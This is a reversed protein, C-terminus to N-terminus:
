SGMLSDKSEGPSAGIEETLQSLQTTESKPIIVSEISEGEDLRKAVELITDAIVVPIRVAKTQGLNWKPKRGSNERYGGRPM